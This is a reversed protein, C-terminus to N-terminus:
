RNYIHGPRDSPSEWFGYEKLAKPTPKRRTSDSAWQTVIRFLKNDTPQIGLKKLNIELEKLKSDQMLNQLQQQTLNQSSIASSIAQKIQTVQFKQLELNSETSRTTNHVRAMSEAINQTNLAIRSVAEALMSENVKGERTNREEERRDRNATLNNELGLKQVNAKMMELSYDRTDRALGTDFQLKETAAATQAGQLAKLIAEQALVTNQTRLNDIQAEQMRTNFYANIAPTADVNVEPARPNWSPTDASRVTAGENSQGYILAPNLGADRFRQMQAAPSNYENQMHYDALSEQRTLAHMKENWERTKKNTKGQSYASAGASGLTAGAAIIAAAPIPM